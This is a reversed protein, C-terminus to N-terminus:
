LTAQIAISPIPGLVREATEETLKLFKASECELLPRKQPHELEGHGCRLVSEDALNVLAQLGATRDAPDISQHHHGIVHGIAPPMKWLRAALLGAEEHLTSCLHERLRPDPSHSDPIEGLMTWLVVLHGVDHFLATVYALLPRGFHYLKALHEVTMATALSHDWLTTAELTDRTPGSSFLTRAIATFIEHTVADLDCTELVDTWEATTAPRTDPTTPRGAMTLIYEYVHDPVDPASALVEAISSATLDHRGLLLFLVHAAEQIQVCRLRGTHIRLAVKKAIEADAEAFHFTRNDVEPIKNWWATEASRGRTPPRFFATGPRNDRNDRKERPPCKDLPDDHHFIKEINDKISM